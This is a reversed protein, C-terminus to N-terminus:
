SLIPLLTIPELFGDTVHSPHIVKYITEIIGFRWSDIMALLFAVVNSPLNHKHFMLFDAVDDLNGHRPSVFLSTSPEYASISILSRAHHNIM